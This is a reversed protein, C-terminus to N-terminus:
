DENQYDNVFGTKGRIVFVNGWLSIGFFDGFDGAKGIM